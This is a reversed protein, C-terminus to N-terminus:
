NEDKRGGKKNKERESPNFRLPPKM